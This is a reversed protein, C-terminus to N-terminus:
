ALHVWELGIERLDVRIGGDWRRIPRGLTRKREPKEVLFKYLKRDEGM